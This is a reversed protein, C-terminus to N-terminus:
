TKEKSSFEVPLVPGTLSTVQWGAYKRKTKAATNEEERLVRQLTVDVFFTEKGESGPYTVALQLCVVDNNDNDCTYNKVKYFSVSAKDKLAM